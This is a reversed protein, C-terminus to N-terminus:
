DRARCLESIRDTVADWDHQRVLCALDILPLRIALSTGVRPSMSERAVDRIGRGDSRGVPQSAGQIQGMMNTPLMKSRIVFGSRVRTM